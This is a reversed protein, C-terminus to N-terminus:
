RRSWLAAAAAARQRALVTAGCAGVVILLSGVAYAGASPVGEHAILAPVANGLTRVPAGVSDATAVDGLSALVALVAAAIVTRRLGAGGGWLVPLLGDAGLVRATQASGGTAAFLTTLAPLAAAYGLLAHLAIARGWWAGDSSWGTALGVVSVPSLALVLWPAYGGRLWAPVSLPAYTMAALGGLLAASALAASGGAAAWFRFGGDGRLLAGIAEPTFGRALVAALPVIIWVSAILTGAVAWSTEGRTRSDAAALLSDNAGAGRRARLALALVPLTILIPLSAALGAVGAQSARHAVLPLSALGAHQFVFPVALSTFAHLFALLAGVALARMADPQEVMRWREVGRVGLVSAADDRQRVADGGRGPQLARWAVAVLAIAVCAQALLVPLTSELATGAGDALAGRGVAELLARVGTGFVVPPVALPLLACLELAGAIKHGSRRIAEGLPVGFAVALATSIGATMASGGLALLVARPGDIASSREAAPWLAAVLAAAFPVLVALAFTAAALAQWRNTSPFAIRTPLAVIVPRSM